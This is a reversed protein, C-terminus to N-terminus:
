LLPIPGGALSYSSMHGAVEVDGVRVFYLVIDSSSELLHSHSTAPAASPRFPAPQKLSEGASFIRRTFAVLFAEFGGLFAAARLFSGFFTALFFATEFDFATLLALFFFGETLGPLFGAALFDLGTDLFALLYAKLKIILDLRGKQPGGVNVKLSRNSEIWDKGM